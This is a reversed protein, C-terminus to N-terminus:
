WRHHNHRPTRKKENASITKIGAQLRMHLPAPRRSRFLHEERLFCDIGPCRAPSRVQQRKSRAVPANLSEGVKRPPDLRSPTIWPVFTAVSQFLREGALAAKSAHPPVPTTMPSRPQRSAKCEPVAHALPPLPKNHCRWRRHATTGHLHPASQRPRRPAPAAHRSKASPRMRASPLVPIKFQRSAEVPFTFQDRSM